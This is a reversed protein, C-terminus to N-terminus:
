AQNKTLNGGEEKKMSKSLSLLGEVVETQKLSVRLDPRVVSKLEEASDLPLVEYFAETIFWKGMAENGSEFSFEKLVPAEESGDERMGNYYIWSRARKVLATFHTLGDGLIAGRLVLKKADFNFMEPLDM